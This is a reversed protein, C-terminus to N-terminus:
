KNVVFYGLLSNQLLRNLFSNFISYQPYKSRYSVNMFGGSLVLLYTGITILDADSLLSVMLFAYALGTPISYLILKVIDLVSVKEKQITSTLGSLFLKSYM